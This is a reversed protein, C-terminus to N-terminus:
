AGGRIRSATLLRIWDARAFLGEVHRDHEVRVVGDPTRLLLCLGRRVHQGVSRSGMDVRPVSIRAAETPAATIPGKSRFNERVFDPRSCSRAALGAICSLQRSPWQSIPRTTMYCVADHVFVADFERGLRVTRMDGDVHECEPISRRSEGNAHGSVARRAGHRVQAESTLRQERRRQGVGGDHPDAHRELGAGHGNISAQKRKTALQRRSCRGGRCCAREYMKPM